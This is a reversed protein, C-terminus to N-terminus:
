RGQLVSIKAPSINLLTQLARTMKEKVLPNKAGEAVVLIGQIRPKIEKVVVPKEENAATRVLVLTGDEIYEDTIRTGGNRDNEDINKETTSVNIAYEYELSEELFVTVSVNGAGNIKSLIKVLRVELMQEARAIDSLEDNEVTSKKTIENNTVINNNHNKNKSISGFLMLLVGLVLAGIMLYFKKKDNFIKEMYNQTEESM